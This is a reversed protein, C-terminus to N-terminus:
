RIFLTYIIKNFRKNKYYETDIYKAYVTAFEEADKPLEVKIGRFIVPIKHPSYEDPFLPGNHHLKTWRHKESKGGHQLTTQSEARKKLIQLLKTFQKRLFYNTLKHM